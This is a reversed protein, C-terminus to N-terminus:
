NTSLETQNLQLMEHADDGFHRFLNQIAYTMELIVDEETLDSGDQKRHNICCSITCASQYDTM